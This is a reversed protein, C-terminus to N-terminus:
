VHLTIYVLERGCGRVRLHRVKIAFQDIGLHVCNEPYEITSEQIDWIYQLQKASEEELPMYSLKHFTQGNKTTSTDFTISCPYKKSTYANFFHREVDAPAVLLKGHIEREKGEKQVIIVGKLLKQLGIKGFPLQAEARGVCLFVCDDGYLEKMRGVSLITGQQMPDMKAFQKIQKANPLTFDM